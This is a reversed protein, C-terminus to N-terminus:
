MKWQTEPWFLTGLMEKLDDFPVDCRKPTRFTNALMPKYILVYM